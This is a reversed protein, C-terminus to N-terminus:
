RAAGAAAAADACRPGTWVGGSPAVVAPLERVGAAAAQETARALAAATARTGMGTLVARPHLENAAAAILVSDTDSLNRGGAYAQRFAALSFAVVRGISKAYTAALLAPEPDWPWAAPWRLPLRGADAADRALGAPDPEPLPAGGRLSAGRVPVWEAAPGLAGILSEAALWCAPEAFDYLFRVAAAPDYREVTLGEAV